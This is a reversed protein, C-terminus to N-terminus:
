PFVHRQYRRHFAEYEKRVADPNSADLVHVLMTRDAEDVDVLFTGPSLGTVLAFVAVGLPTREGIPIAVIGPHRLPRLHLVVLTVRWTGRLIDGVIAAAFPLFTLIRRALDPIPTLRGGFVFDRTAVLLVTGLLAGLFADWPDISALVLLYILVLAALAILFRSV